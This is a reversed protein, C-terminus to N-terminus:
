AIEKMVRLIFQENGDTKQVTVVGSPSTVQIEARWSGPVLSDSEWPFYFVGGAADTIVADIVLPTKYGIHLAITYDSIDIPDDNDDTLVGSITPLTDGEVFDYINM